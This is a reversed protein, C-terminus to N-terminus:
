IKDCYKNALDELELKTEIRNKQLWEHLESKLFYIKKGHPKYHPIELSSTLKYMYSKAIGVYSCVEELTMMDKHGVLLNEIRELKKEIKELHDM